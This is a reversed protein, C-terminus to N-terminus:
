ETLPKLILAEAVSLDPWTDKVLLKTGTIEVTANQLLTLDRSAKLRQEETPYKITKTDIDVVGENAEIIKKAQDQYPKAKEQIQGVLDALKFADDIPFKRNSDNLLESIIPNLFASIESCKLTIM